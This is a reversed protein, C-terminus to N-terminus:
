FMRGPKQALAQLIVSTPVYTTTWQTATVSSLSFAVNKHSFVKCTDPPPPLSATFCLCKELSGREQLDQLDVAVRAGQVGLGSEKLKIGAAPSPPCAAYPGRPWVRSHYLPLPVAEGGRAIFRPVVRRLKPM